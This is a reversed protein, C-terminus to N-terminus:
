LIKAECLNIAEKETSAEGQEGTYRIEFLWLNSNIKSCCALVRGNDELFRTKVGETWTM